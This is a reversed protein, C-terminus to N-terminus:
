HLANSLFAVADLAHKEEGQAPCAYECGRYGHDWFGVGENANEGTFGRSIWTRQEAFGM